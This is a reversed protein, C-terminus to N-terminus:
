STSKFRPIPYLQIVGRGHVAMSVLVKSVSHFIQFTYHQPHPFGAMSVLVKSVVTHLISLLFLLFFAAMSVLVKSVSCFKLAMKTLTLFDAM